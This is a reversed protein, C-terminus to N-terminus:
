SQTQLNESAFRNRLYRSGFYGLIGLVFGIVGVTDNRFWTLWSVGQQFHVVQKNLWQPQFYSVGVEYVFVILGFLFFTDFLSLMFTRRMKKSNNRLTGITWSVVTSFPRTVVM